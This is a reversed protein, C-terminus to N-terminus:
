EAEVISSNDEDFLYTKGVTLDIPEVPLGSVAWYLKRHCLGRKMQDITWNSPKFKIIGDERRM